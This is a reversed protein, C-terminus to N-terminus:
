LEEIRVMFGNAVVGSAGQRVRVVVGAGPPSGLEAAVGPDDDPIVEFTSAASDAAAAVPQGTVVYHASPSYGPFTLLFLTAGGGPPSSLPLPHATLEGRADVTAGDALFRGSVVAPAGEAFEAATLLWEQLLKAHLLTPRSREGARVTIPPTDAVILSGTPADIVVPVTLEALCLSDAGGDLPGPGGSCGCEAGSPDSRVRARLDTVWFSFLAALYEGAASRPIQLSPPPSAYLFDLLAPPSPPSAAELAMLLRLEEVFADVDGPPGDVVPIGRVWRVFDAIADDESQSPASLQLDLTFSDQVRSPQQLEDDSRCPEGPIPVTDTYCEAYAAVVALQLASPPPSAIEQLQDVNAQLWANLNACQAPSICVFQGSPTVLEGPAVQVQPGTSTSVDITVRLGSVVGYGILDRVIRQDRGSSYAFEQVFDDVGLVMGMQYDVHKSPDPPAIQPLSVPTFTTM